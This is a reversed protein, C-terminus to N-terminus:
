RALSRRLADRRTPPLNRLARRLNEESAGLIQDASEKTRRTMKAKLMSKKIPRAARKSRPIPWILLNPDATILRKASSLGSGTRARVRVEAVAGAKDQDTRITIEAQGGAAGFRWVPLGDEGSAIEYGARSIAAEVEGADTARLAWAARYRMRGRERDAQRKLVAEQAARARALRDAHREDADQQASKLLTSLPRMGGPQAKNNFYRLVPSLEHKTGSLTFIVSDGPWSKYFAAFLGGLRAAPVSGGSDVSVFGLQALESAILLSDAETAIEYELDPM